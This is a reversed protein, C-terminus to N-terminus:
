EEELRVVRRVDLARLEREFLGRSEPRAACDLLRQRIVDPLQEVIAAREVEDGIGERAALRDALLEDARDVRSEDFANASPLPTTPPHRPNHPPPPPPPTPPTFARPSRTILDSM